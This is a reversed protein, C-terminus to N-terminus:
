WAKVIGMYDSWVRAWVNLPSLTWLIWVPDAHQAPVNDPAPSRDPKGILAAYAAGIRKFKEEAEPDDPHHDPHYKKALERFRQRLEHKSATAPLDLAQYYQKVTM